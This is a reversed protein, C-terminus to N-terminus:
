QNADIIRNKGNKKANHLASDLIAYLEDFDNLAKATALYSLSASINLPEGTTTEFATNIIAQHLKEVKDAVDLEDVAKFLLIFEEGGLRGITDRSDMQNQIVDITHKLAIDGNSYGHQRNFNKFDDLDIYLLVHKLDPNNVAPQRKIERIAASRNLAATLNDQECRTTDNRRYYIYGVFSFALLLIGLLALNNKEELDKFQGRLSANDAILKATKNESIYDRRASDLAIFASRHEKDRKSLESQAYARYYTLALSFDGQSESMEALLKLAKTKLRESSISEALDLAQLAFERAALMKNQQQHSVALTLYIDGRIQPNEQKTASDLADLLYQTGQEYDGLGIYSQGLGLQAYTIGILHNYDDVIQKSRLLHVIATEYEGKKFMVKGMSHHSQALQLLSMNNTRMTLAIDIYQKAKDYHGLTSLLLGADNYVGSSDVYDPIDALLKQYTDLAAQYNGLFEQNNAIVRHAMYKPLISTTADQIHTNLSSCYVNAQQYQAQRNLVRCLHYEFIIQGDLSKKREAYQLLSIYRQSAASFDLQEEYNLADIFNKEHATFEADFLTKKSHYPQGNLIMFGHLKSSVYLKEIGPELGNYRDQLLSLARSKDSKLASAYTEEWQSLSDQANSPLATLLAVVCSFKALHLNM